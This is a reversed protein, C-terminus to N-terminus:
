DPCHHGELFVIPRLKTGPCDSSSCIAQICVDPSTQGDKKNGSGDTKMMSGTSHFHAAHLSFTNNGDSSVEMILLVISACKATHLFYVLKCFCFRDFGLATFSRANSLISIFSLTLEMDGALHVLNSSLHFIQFDSWGGSCFM